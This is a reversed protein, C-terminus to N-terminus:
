GVNKLYEELGFKVAQRLTISLPINSFSIDNQIQNCKLLLQYEEENLKLLYAYKYDYNKNNM